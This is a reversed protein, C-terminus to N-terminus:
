LVLSISHGNTRGTKGLCQGNRKKAYNKAQDLESNTPSAYAIHVSLISQPPRGVREPDAILMLEERVFGRSPAFEGDLYYLVPAEMGGEWEANALLYRVTDGKKLKMEDKGVPRKYKTSPKSEVRDLVIAKVPELGWKESGMSKNISSRISEIAYQIKYIFKSLTQQFAGGFALGRHSYPGIVRIYCQARANTSFDRGDMRAM